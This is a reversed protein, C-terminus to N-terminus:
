AGRFLRERANRLLASLERGEASDSDNETSTIRFVMATHKDNQPVALWLRLINVLLQYVNIGERKGEQSILKQMGPLMDDFTDKENLIKLMAVARAVARRLGQDDKSAMEVITRSVDESLLLNM